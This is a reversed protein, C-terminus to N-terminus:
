GGIRNRCVFMYATEGSAVKEKDTNSKQVKHVKVFCAVFKPSVELTILDLRPLTDTRLHTFSDCM